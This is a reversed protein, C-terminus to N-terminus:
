VLRYSPYDLFPRSENLLGYYSFTICWQAFIQLGNETLHMQMLYQSYDGTHQEGSMQYRPLSYIQQCHRCQNM